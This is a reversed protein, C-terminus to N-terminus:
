LATHAANLADLTDCGQFVYRTVGAQRMRTEDKGPKGAIFVATAGKDRLATVAEMGTREYVADTSCICAVRAGSQEFAEAAAAISEFGDLGTTAFGGPQFLGEAFDARAAWDARSGVNALFVLPRKGGRTEYLDALHRLREFPEALRTWPLPLISVSGEPNAPAAGPVPMPELVEVPKEDLQPFRSAGTLSDRRLAVQRERAARVKRVQAQFSGSALEAWIGGSRESEQLREWTKEAISDTLTDVGGSGAAPDAVKALNSEELLVLQTNRALRRAFDDPLGQAQTLPLVTVGDAGGLGAAVTALTGRLANVWSDRRTMMRWATEAHVHVSKPELGCSAEIRAWLARLARLKAMTVYQDADAAIRFGIANRAAELVMGGAELARLYAVACTLAFALEQAESGCAAHVIRGDAACIPGNFGRDALSAVKAAFGAALEPWTAPAHGLVAASGIPDLGVHIDTASPDVSRRQLHEVLATAVASGAVGADIEVVVVGADLHIGDFLQDVVEAPDGGIGFGFNNPAAAFVANLGSAGNQLDTLATANAAQADTLDIRTVVRWGSDAKRPVLPTSTSRPYLPQIPIGDYTSSVLREFSQGKLVGDVLKRWAEETAQPFDDTVSTDM